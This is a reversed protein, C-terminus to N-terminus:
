HRVQVGDIPLSKRAPPPAFVTGDVVANLEVQVYRLNAAVGTRPAEVDISHPFADRYDDFRVRLVLQENRWEEARELDLTDSAFWLAQLGDAHPLDLRYFAEEPRRLVPPSVPTRVPPVGLLIDVLDDVRVSAGLFRSLNDPTAPGEYRIGEDPPYAWLVTGDTGLALALGFPSLVDVRVGRPRRVVVAERAWVGALGSRLRARARLSTTASRRAEVAELLREATVGTPPVV